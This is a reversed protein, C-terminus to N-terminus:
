EYDMVYNLHAKSLVRLWLTNAQHTIITGNKNVADVAQNTWCLVLDQETHGYKSFDNAEGNSCKEADQFFEKDNFRHVETLKYLTNNFCYKCDM